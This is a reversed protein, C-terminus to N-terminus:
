WPRTLLEHVFLVSLFVLVLSAEHPAKMKLRHWVWAAAFLIPVMLVLVAAAQAFNLTGFIHLMPSRGVVGGYLILLHLVYVLLTEHGLLALARIGPLQHAAAMEVLRLVLVLAGLRLLAYAPSISWFDVRGALVLTLVLGAAMLAGGAIWARRHRKAPEQSCL